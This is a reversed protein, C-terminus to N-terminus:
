SLVLNNPTMSLVKKIFSCYLPNLNKDAGTTLYIFLSKIDFQILQSNIKYCFDLFIKRNSVLSENKCIMATHYEDGVAGSQCLQCLRNNPLINLYRGREIPLNHSSTRFRTLAKRHEPNKILLYSELTLNSKVSKYLALKGEQQQLSSAFSVSCKKHLISQISKGFTKSNEESYKKPIRDLLNLEKLLSLM